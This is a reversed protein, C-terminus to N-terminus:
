YTVWTNFDSQIIADNIISFGFIALILYLVGKDEGGRGYRMSIESSARGWKYYAYWGFIGGTVIWLLVTIGPSTEVREQTQTVCFGRAITYKWYLGYIGFTIITLVIAVAVSRQEM